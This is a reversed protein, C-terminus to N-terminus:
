SVSTLEPNQGRGGGGWGRGRFFFFFFFFFFFSDYAIDKVAFYRVVWPAWSAFRLSLFPGAM